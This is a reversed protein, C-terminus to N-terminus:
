KQQCQGSRMDIQAIIHHCYYVDYVGDRETARIGVSEGTFARGVQFRMKHCSIFGAPGVRRIIDGEHYEIKGLKEPFEFVSIRYRSVPTAMGLAEHPREQNYMRRFQDLSRQCDAMDVHLRGQLAEEKLTRNFRENKGQTQPHYPRGHTLRIGLRIQWVNLGTYQAAVRGWCSGNDMLMWAPLGYRRFVETLATQVTQARQDACGTVCVAYRSHDDVVTLPHCQRGDGLKVPGKFDMQWLENPMPREFRKMPEHQKSAEADILGRRKLIAGVTSPAPVDDMGLDQLRRAIKRGGWQPHEQRVRAVADEVVESVKGPSELPRRSQDSEWGVDGGYARELWKYGTKRSIGFRRCLQTMNRGEGAALASFEMRNAKVTTEKWPM